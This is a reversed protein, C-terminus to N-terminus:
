SQRRIAGDEAARRAWYERSPSEERVATAVKRIRITEPWGFQTFFLTHSTVGTRALFDDFASAFDQGFHALADRLISTCNRHRELASLDVRRNWQYTFEM